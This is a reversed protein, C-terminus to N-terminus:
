QVVTVLSKQVGDTSGGLVARLIDGYSPTNQVTYSEGTAADTIQVDYLDGDSDFSEKMNVNYIHGAVKIKATSDTIVKVEPCHSVFTHDTELGNVTSYPLVSCQRVRDTIHNMESKVQNDYAFASASTLSLVLSFIVATTKM